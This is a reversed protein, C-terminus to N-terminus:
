SETYILLDVTITAGWGTATLWVERDKSTEPTSDVIRGTSTAGRVVGPVVAVWKKRLGHQVKVLTGSALAVDAKIAPLRNVLEQIVRRHDDLAKQAEQDDVTVRLPVRPTVVWSGLLLEPGLGM